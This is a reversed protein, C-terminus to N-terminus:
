QRWSPLGAAGGEPCLARRAAVDGEGAEIKELVYLRYMVEALDVEDPLGDVLEQDHAKTVTM